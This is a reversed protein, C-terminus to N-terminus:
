PDAPLAPARAAELRADPARRALAMLGAAVAGGLAAFGAIFAPHIFTTDLFRAALPGSTLGLAVAMAYALPLVVAAAAGWAGARAPSPPEAGRRAHAVLMLGVAFGLGALAGWPAFASAGYAAILWRNPPASQGGVVVAVLHRTSWLAFGMGITAWAASWVLAMGVAGRARRVVIRM